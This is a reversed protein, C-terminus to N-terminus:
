KYNTIWKSLKVSVFLSLLRKASIVFVCAINFPNIENFNLYIIMVAVMRLVANNPSFVSFYQPLPLFLYPPFALVSGGPLMKNGLSEDLKPDTTVLLNFGSILVASCLIGVSAM